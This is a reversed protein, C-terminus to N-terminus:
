DLALDQGPIMYYPLRLENLFSVPGRRPLRVRIRTKRQHEATRKRARESVSEHLCLLLNQKENRILSSGNVHLCGRVLLYSYKILKLLCPIFFFSVLVKSKKTLYYEFCKSLIYDSTLSRFQKSM